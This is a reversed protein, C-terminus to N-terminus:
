GKEIDSPEFNLLFLVFDERILEEKDRNPKLTHQLQFFLPNLFGLSSQCSCLELNIIEKDYM